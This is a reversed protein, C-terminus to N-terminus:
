RYNSYDTQDIYTQVRSAWLKVQIDGGGTKGVSISVKYVDNVRIHSETLAIEPHFFRNTMHVKIRITKPDFLWAAICRTLTFIHKLYYMVWIMTILSM